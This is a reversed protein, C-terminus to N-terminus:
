GVAGATGARGAAPMDLEVQITPYRIDDIGAATFVSKFGGHDVDSALHRHDQAGTRDGGCLDAFNGSGNGAAFSFCRSIKGFRRTRRAHFVAM